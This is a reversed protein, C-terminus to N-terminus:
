RSHSAYSTLGGGTFQPAIAIGSRNHYFYKLADYLPSQFVTSSISFAHSSEAGVKLTFGSGTATVASFDIQQLRDGSAVDVAARSTKGRARVKGDHHLEWYQPRSEATKFSAIKVGGPLYGLQNVRPNGVEAWAVSCPVPLLIFVLLSSRHHSKM